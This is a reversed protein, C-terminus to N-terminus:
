SPNTRFFIVDGDQVEYNKGEVRYRGSEKLAKVSQLRFLDECLYVEARIFGKEFDSHIRGAAEPAKAGKKVTWGRVEQKGATFFTIWDLLRYAERILRHLAPEKMGLTELFEKKESDELVALDSELKGSITIVQGASIKNKLQVASKEAEASPAEGMNCLYLVPKMTLLYLRRIIKLQEESEIPFAGASQGQNMFESIKKLTEAEKRLHKESQSRKEIKELRTKVTLLDSLILESEIIEIDRLPNIESFVHSINKDEFCRVVHLLAQCERIHSLFRSGLGEGQHAGKVLGAIDVFEMMPYIQKEPEFFRSIKKIRPDPVQVAGVNPEITCFPYNEAPVPIATLAKFLTSKGVNPLGILGCKM